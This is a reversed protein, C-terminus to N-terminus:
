VTPKELKVISDANQNSFIYGNNSGVILGTGYLTAASLGSVEEGGENNDNIDTLEYWTSTSNYSKFIKSNSGIAVMMDRYKLVDNVSLILPICRHTHRSRYGMSNYDEVLVNKIENRKVKHIHNNAFSDRLVKVKANQMVFFSSKITEKVAINTSDIVSSVYHTEFTGFNDEILIKDGVMFGSTNQINITSDNKIIDTLIMQENVKFDDYYINSTFGYLNADISFEWGSSIKSPNYELEDWWSLNSTVVEMEYQTLKIIKTEFSINKTIPNYIVLTAGQLLYEDLDIKSDWNSTVNIAVKVSSNGIELSAINGYIINNILDTDHYHDLDTTTKKGDFSSLTSLSQGSVEFSDGSNFTLILNQEPLAYPEVTVTDYTNSNIKSSFTETTLYKGSYQNINTFDDFQVHFIIKGTKDLISFTQGEVIDDITNITPRAAAPLITADVTIQDSTQELIVYSKGLNENENSTVYLTGGKYLGSAVEVDFKVKLKSKEGIIYVRKGIYINFDSSYATEVEVVFENNATKRSNSLIKYGNNYSEVGEFYLLNGVFENLRINDLSKLSVMLNLNNVNQNFSLVTSVKGISELTGTEGLRDIIGYGISKGGVITGSDTLIGNNSCILVDNTLTEAVKKLYIPSVIGSFQTQNGQMANYIDQGYVTIKNMDEFFENWVVFSNYLKVSGSESNVFSVSRLNLEGNRYSYISPYTYQIVLETNGFSNLSSSLINFKIEGYSFLPYWRSGIDDAMLVHNIIGDDSDGNSLAMMSGDSLSYIDSIIFNQDELEVEAENWQLDGTKYSISNNGGALLTNTISGEGTYEGNVFPEWWAVQILQLDDINQPSTINFGKQIVIENKSASIVSYYGDSNGANKLRIMRGEIVPIYSRYTSTIFGKTPTDYNDNTLTAYHSDIELYERGSWRFILKNIPYQVVSDQILSWQIMNTTQYIGQKTAANLTNENTIILDFVAMNLSNVYFWNGELGNEIVSWFIGLDTAVILNGAFTGLGVLIKNISKSDIRQFNGNYLPQSYMNSLNLNIKEELEAEDYHFDYYLSNKYKSKYDGIEPKYKSKYDGIKPYIYRVAQTLQLINSLYSNNLGYPRLDSAISLKDDIDDHTNLGANELKSEYIDITIKADGNIKPIKRISAPLIINKSVATSLNIVNGIVSDIVAYEFMNQQKIKTKGNEIVSDRYSEYGAIIYIPIAPVGKVTYQSKILVNDGANFGNSDNVILSSDYINIKSTINANAGFDIIGSFPDVSFNEFDVGRRDIDKITSLVLTDEIFIEFNSDDEWRGEKAIWKECNVLASAEGSESIYKFKEFHFQNSISNYAYGYYKRINEELYMAQPYGSFAHLLTYESGNVTSYLENHCGIYLMSLDYSEKFSYAPLDFSHVWKNGTYVDIGNEDSVYINGGFAHISSIDGSPKITVFDWTLGYDVSSFINRRSSVAYVANNSGIAMDKSLKVFGSDVQTRFSLEWDKGGNMTRYVGDSNCCIITNNGAYAVDTVEQYIFPIKIDKITSGNQYPRSVMLGRGTTIWLNNEDDKVIKKIVGSNAPIEPTVWPTYFDKDLNRHRSIIKSGCVFLDEVAVGSPDGDPVSESDYAYDDRLAMSWIPIEHFSNYVTFIGIINELDEESLSNVNDVINGTSKNFLQFDVVIDNTNLEDQTKETFYVFNPVNFYDVKKIMIKDVDSSLPDTIGYMLYSDGNDVLNTIALELQEGYISQTIAISKNTRLEYQSKAEMLLTWLDDGIIAFEEENIVILYSETNPVIYFGNSTGLYINGDKNEQISYITKPDGGSPIILEHTHVSSSVNSQNIDNYWETLGSYESSLVKGKDIGHIHSILYSKQGDSGTGYIVADEEVFLNETIGGLQTDVFVSHSHGFSIDTRNPIVEYSVGNQSAMYQQYPLCTENIRGVHNIFPIREPEFEGLVIKSANIYLINEPNLVGTVESVGLNEITVSPRDFLIKELIITLNKAANPTFTFMDGDNTLLEDAILSQQELPEFGEVGTQDDNIFLFPDKQGEETLTLKGYEDVLMSEAKFFEPYQRYFDREMSLMFHLVSYKKASFSYKTKKGDLTTFEFSTSYLAYRKPIGGELVFSQYDGDIPVTSEDGVEKGDIYIIYRSYVTPKEDIDITHGHSEVQLNTYENSIVLFAKIKHFHIKTEGYNGVTYGDGNANIYYDHQHDKSVSTRNSSLIKYETRNGTKYQIFAAKRIDTELRIKTPDFTGSGGHIHKELILAAFSKIKGELNDLSDVTRLDVEKLTGNRAIVRAILIRNSSVSMQVSFASFSVATFHNASDDRWLYDKLAQIEADYIAKAALYDNYDHYSRPSPKDGPIAPYDGLSPFSETSIRDAYIYTDGDDSLTIEQPIVVKVYENEIPGVPNYLPNYAQIVSVYIARESATLYPKQIDEPDDNIISVERDPIVMESRKKATYPSEVFYGNIMGKGPLIKVNLGDVHEINWGSIIGVGVIGVYSELNYELSVFRKYDSNGSYLSGRKFYDFRYRPTIQSM